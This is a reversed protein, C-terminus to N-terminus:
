EIVIKCSAETTVRREGPLDTIVEITGILEGDTLADFSEPTASIQIPITHVLKPKESPEFEIKFGKAVIDSVLFEKKGTVVLMKKVSEGPKVDGMAVLSPKVNLTADVRGLVRIPVRKLNRDNTNIVLETLIPGVPASAEVGVTLEYKIRGGARSVEELSTKIYKSPETVGVIMWDGRGAYDIQIKQSKSAGESISGMDVEGPNFVVDTRIYGRVTLQVESFQPQDFTVTVTAQRKGIHSHTNFRALITGIQGPQVTETEIIPTTCNCSTRVSRVHIPQTYKNEFEFRYETKAARAVAGFDHQTSTFM